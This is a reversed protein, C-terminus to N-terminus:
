TFQTRGPQVPFRPLNYDGLVPNSCMQDLCELVPTAFDLGVPSCDLRTKEGVGKVVSECWQKRGPPVSFGDPNCSGLVPNQSARSLLMKSM